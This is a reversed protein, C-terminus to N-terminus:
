ILQFNCNIIMIMIMVNELVKEEPNEGLEQFLPRPGLATTREFRVDGFDRLLREIPLM